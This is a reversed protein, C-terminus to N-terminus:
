GGILGRRGVQITFGASMGRDQDVGGSGHSHLPGGGLGVFRQHQKGSLGPQKWVAIKAPDEILMWALCYAIVGVIYTWPIAPVFIGLGVILVAVTQTGIIAGLLIPNPGPKPWIPKRTRAVLLTLHGALALKLFIVSQLHAADVGLWSKFFSM